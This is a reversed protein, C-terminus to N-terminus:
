HPLRRAVACCGATWFGPLKSSPSLRSALSPSTFRACHLSGLTASASRSRPGIASRIELPSQAIRVQDKGELLFSRESSQLAQNTRVLVSRMRHVSDGFLLSVSLASPLMAFPLLRQARGRPPRWTPRSLCHRRMSTRLCPPRPLESGRVM